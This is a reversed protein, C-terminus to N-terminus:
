LSDFISVIDAIERQIHDMYQLALTAHQTGRGAPIKSHRVRHSGGAKFAGKSHKLKTDALAQFRRRYAVWHQHRDKAIVFRPPLRSAANNFPRHCVFVCLMYANCLLHSSPCLVDSLRPMMMSPSPQCIGAVRQLPTTKWGHASKLGNSTQYNCPYLRRRNGFKKIVRVLSPCRKRNMGQEGYEKTKRMRLHGLPRRLPPARHRMAVYLPHYYNMYAATPLLHNPVHKEHLPQYFAPTKGHLPQYRCGRRKIVKINRQIQVVSTSNRAGRKKLVNCKKKRCRASKSNTYFTKDRKKEEFGARRKTSFFRCQKKKDSM